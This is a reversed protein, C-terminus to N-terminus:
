IDTNHLLQPAALLRWPPAALIASAHKRACNIRLGVHHKLRKVSYAFFFMQQFTMQVTAGPDICQELAYSRLRGAYLFHCLAHVQALYLLSSSQCVQLAQYCNPSGRQAHVDERPQCTRAADVRQHELQM